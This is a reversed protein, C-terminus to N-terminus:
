PVYAKLDAIVKRLGKGPNVVVNGDTLAQAITTNAKKLSASLADALDQAATLQAKLTDVQMTLDANAKKEIDLQDQVAQCPDVVVSGRLSDLLLMAQKEDPSAKSTRWNIIAGLEGKDLEFQLIKEFGPSRAKNLNVFSQYFAARQPVGIAPDSYRASGFELLQATKGKSRAWDLFPGFIFTAPDANHKASDAWGTGANKANVWNYGDLGAIDVNKDGPWWPIALQFIDIINGKADKKFAGNLPNFTWDEYVMIYKLKNGVAAKMVDVTHNYAAIFQAPTWGDNEPEHHIAASEVGAAVLGVAVAAIQSDSMLQNGTNSYPKFSPVVDYGKAALSQVDPWPWPQQTKYVRVCDAPHGVVKEWDALHYPHCGVSTM